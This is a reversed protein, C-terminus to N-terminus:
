KNFRSDMSSEDYQTTAVDYNLYAQIVDFESQIQKAEAEALAEERINILFFNSGGKTFKYNEAKLLERAYVVEDKANNMRDINKLKAEGFKEVETLAAEKAFNYRTTLAEKAAAASRVQGLISNFELPVEITMYITWINDPFTGLSLSRWKSDNNAYYTASLDLKPFWQNKALSLNTESINIEKQLSFLDPRFSIKEQASGNKTSNTAAILSEVKLPMIEEMPPYKEIDIVVPTAQHNRYFLSLDQAAQVLYLKASALDAKRRAVYQLNEKAVIQSINGAKVQQSLNDKRKEAVDLLESYVRFVRLAAAWNWYSLVGDRTAMVETFFTDAKSKELGYKANRLRARNGDVWLGRLLSASAGFNLPTGLGSMGNPGSDFPLSNAASYNYGWGVFVKSNAFGLGKEVQGDWLRNTLSADPRSISKSTVKADFSGRATLVNAKAGDFNFFAERIVPYNKQTSEIITQETPVQAGTSFSSLFAICFVFLTRMM